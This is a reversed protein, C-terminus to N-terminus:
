RGCRGITSARSRLRHVGVRCPGLQCAPEQMAIPRRGGLMEGFPSLAAQGIRFLGELEDLSLEDLQLHPSSPGGVPRPHGLGRSVAQPSSSNTEERNLIGIELLPIPRGEARDSPGDAVRAPLAPGRASNMTSPATAPVQRPRTFPSRQFTSISGNPRRGGFHPSAIDGLRLAHGGELSARGRHDFHRPLM